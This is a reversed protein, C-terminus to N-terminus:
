LLQKLLMIKSKIIEERTISNDKCLTIIIKEDHYNDRYNLIIAIWTDLFMLEHHLNPDQTGNFCNIINNKVIEINNFCESYEGPIYSGYYSWMDYYNFAEIELKTDGDTKIVFDINDHHIDPKSIINSTENSLNNSLDDSKSESMTKVSHYIM